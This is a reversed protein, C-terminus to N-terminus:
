ARPPRLRIGRVMMTPAPTVPWSTAFRRSSGITMSDSTSFAVMRLRSRPSMLTTTPSAVSSLVRSWAPIDSALSSRTQRPLSLSAYWVTSLEM